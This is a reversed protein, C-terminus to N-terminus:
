SSVYVFMHYGPPIYFCVLVMKHSMLMEGLSDFFCRQFFLLYFYSKILAQVYPWFCEMPVQFKAISTAVSKQYNEVILM